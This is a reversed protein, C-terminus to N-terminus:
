PAFGEGFRHGYRDNVPGLPNRCHSSASVAMPDDIPSSSLPIYPPDVVCPSKPGVGGTHGFKPCLRRM